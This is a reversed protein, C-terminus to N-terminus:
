AYEYYITITKFGYKKYIGLGDDTAQLILQQYGATKAENLAFTFLASGIGLGRFSDLTAFGYIGCISHDTPFLELSSVPKGEHYYVFLQIATQPDLYVPMTQEYFHVVNQDPPNWHSSVVRAYDRIREPSTAIKINQHVPKHIYNYDALDLIMGVEENQRSLGARDLTMRVAETLNERNVWICFELQRDQYYAIAKDLVEPSVKAGHKIHLINFTDCSLGCDVYTFGPEHYLKMGPTQEPVRRAHLEFNRDILYTM